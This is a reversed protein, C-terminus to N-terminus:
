SKGVIAPISIGVFLYEKPWEIFYANLTNWADQFIKASLFAFIVVKRGFLDCWAGLYFALVAPVLYQAITSYVM